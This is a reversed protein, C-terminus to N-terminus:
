GRRRPLPRPVARGRRCGAFCVQLIEVQPPRLGPVLSPSSPGTKGRASFSAIVRICSISCCFLAWVPLGRARLGFYCACGCRRDSPECAAEFGCPRAAPQWRSSAAGGRRIWWRVCRAAGERVCQLRSVPPGAGSAARGGAVSFIVMSSKALTSSRTAWTLTASRTGM